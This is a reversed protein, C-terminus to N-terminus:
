RLFPFPSAYLLSSAALVLGLLISAGVLSRRTVRGSAAYSRSFDRLALRPARELYSLVHLGTFGFWAVFSYQHATLWISGFRLGFIWLEIGTAFVVVTLLVVFPAILRQLPAPPGALRYDPDGTYYRMFRYGVSAMKLLVPPVLMLGIFVHVSLLAHISLITLGLLALLTFLVIGMLATLRANGEVTRGRTSTAM